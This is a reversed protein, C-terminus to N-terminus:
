LLYVLRTKWKSSEWINNQIYLEFIVYFLYKLFTYFCSKLSLNPINILQLKKTKKLYLFLSSKSMKLMFGAIKKTLLTLPEVGLLQAATQLLRRTAVGAEHLM